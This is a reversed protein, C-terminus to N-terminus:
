LILAFRDASLWACATQLPPKEWAFERWLPISSQPTPLQMETPQLYQRRLVRPGPWFAWALLILSAALCILALFLRVPKKM